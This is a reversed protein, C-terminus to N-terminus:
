GHLVDDDGVEFITYGYEPVEHNSYGDFMDRIFEHDEQSIEVEDGLKEIGRETVKIM